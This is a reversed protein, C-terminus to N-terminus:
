SCSRISSLCRNNSCKFYLIFESLGPINRNDELNRTTKIGQHRQRNNQPIPNHQHYNPIHLPVLQPIVSRPTLIRSYPSNYRRRPLPLSFTLSRFLLQVPTQSPNSQPQVHIQTYLANSNTDQFLPYIVIM